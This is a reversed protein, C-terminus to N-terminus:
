EAVTVDFAKTKLTLNPFATTTMEVVVGNQSKLFTIKGDAITYDTDAVLTADGVKVTFTTAVEEAEMGKAKAQASLDVVAGAPTVEMDAQPAYHFQKKKSTTNMGAPLAPMTAITMKNNDFYFQKTVNKVKISTLQNNNVYVNTLKELNSIDMDGELKNDKVDFWTLATCKTADGITTLQNSAMYLTKVAAIKSIDFSTLKNMSANFSTLQPYTEALTISTIDNNGVAVNKLATNKSIDLSKLVGKKYYEGGIIITELKTNKSIDISELSPEYTPASTTNIITLSTLNKAKSVDISKVPSNNFSFQTLEEFAPLEVKEMNAGSISFQNLKMFRPQDFSTPAIGGTLVMYWLDSNGYVTVIGKGAVTGKFVTASKRWEVTMGSEDKLGGNQYCVTDVVLKGDGFDVAFIDFPDYVGLTLSVEAGVEGQFTGVVNALYEKGDLYYVDTTPSGPNDVDSCSYNMFTALAMAAFVFYKKM